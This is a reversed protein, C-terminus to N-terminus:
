ELELLAMLTPAPTFLTVFGSGSSVWSSLLVVVLKVVLLLWIYKLEIALTKAIFFDNAIWEIKVNWHEFLFEPFVKVNQEDHRLHLYRRKSSPAPDLLKM